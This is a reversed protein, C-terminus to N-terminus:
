SYQSLVKCEGIHFCGSRSIMASKQIESRGEAFGPKAVALLPIIVWEIDHHRSGMHHDKMM